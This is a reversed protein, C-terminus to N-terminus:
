GYRRFRCCPEILLIALGTKVMCGNGLNLLEYKETTKDQRLLIIVM